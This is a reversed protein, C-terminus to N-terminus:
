ANKVLHQKGLFELVISNFIEKKEISCVHGCKEIFQIRYERIRKHMKKVGKIFLYDENGTVFLVPMKYNNIADFYMKVKKQATGLVNVWSVFSQRNMKHSERIFIKRSFTHNSKPMLIKAFMPYMVGVPVIHKLGQAIAMIVKRSIGLNLVFGALTLSAIDEPYNYFWELAVITGLSLAVVHAKDIHEIVLIEHIKDAASAELVDSKEFSSQGHGQLDVCVINYNKFADLQYKWTEMSGGLGHIFVVYESNISNMIIKYNM